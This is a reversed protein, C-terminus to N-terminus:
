AALPLTVTVVVGSGETRNAATVRGGHYEAILRVIYLGLGLHPEGAERGRRVSVMSEFLRGAMEAPLSPGRNAFSIIAEHGARRLVIEIPADAEAFDAANAALKDLLQALLDPAGSLLVPEETMTLAFRRQPYAQVYGSVCGSVVARADFTERAEARVTQELRTAEGMRTLITDLRRLGDNARALYTETEEPTQALKLNDLSSRVVAV